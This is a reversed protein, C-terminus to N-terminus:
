NANSEKLRQLNDMVIDQNNDYFRFFSEIVEKVDYLQNEFCYKQSTEFKLELGSYLSPYIPFWHRKLPDPENSASFFDKSESIKLLKLISNCIYSIITCSPHNFSHFLKFTQFHSQIFSSCKIDLEEERQSLNKLTHELKSELSERSYFSDNELLHYHTDNVTKGQVYFDVINSDHYPFPESLVAGNKGKMYVMEPNYGTFYAVPFSIVNSDSKLRSRLYRTSLQQIGKYNDSVPQHIFLDIEAIVKELNPIDEESLLHVPKIDIFCYQSAFEPNRSLFSKVVVSQCNGYILCKKSM